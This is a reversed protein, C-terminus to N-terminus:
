LFLRKWDKIPETFMQKFWVIFHKTDPDNVLSGLLITIVVPVLMIGGLTYCLLFLLYTPIFLIIGVILKLTKIM